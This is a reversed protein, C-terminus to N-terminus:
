ASAEAADAARWAKRRTAQYMTGSRLMAILVSLWRDGIGRLARAHSHGEQRLREYHRRAIPDERLSVMAHHYLANRLRNNCAYRMGVSLQKGSQRTVPAVGSYARLAPANREEISRSSESLLAATTLDGAGPLSGIIAADSPAGSETPTQRMKKLLSALHKLTAKRLQHVVRLQAVLVLAHEAAAAATGQALTLPTARLQDLVQAKTLRRIRRQRLVSAIQEETLPLADAPLPALELLDWIVPQDPSPCLALMQPYYRNMQESLRSALRQVEERLEDATRYLERLHILEAADVTVRHFAAPDTRLASAGVWADRDDDKAGASTYRDRFHALQKPNIAFVAYGREVLTEVVAGRPTEIAVAAFAPDVGHSALWELLQALGTGSHLISVKACIQGNHDLLCIRHAETAWDIGIYHRFRNPEM